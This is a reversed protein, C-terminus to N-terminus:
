QTFYTSVPSISISYSSYNILNYINKGFSKANGFKFLESFLNVHDSEASPSYYDTITLMSSFTLVAEARSINPLTSIM